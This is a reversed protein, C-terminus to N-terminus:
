RRKIESAIIFRNPNAKYNEVFKIDREWKSRASFYKIDSHTMVCWEIHNSIRAQDLFGLDIIESLIEQRECASLGINEAVSYGYSRLFSEKAMDNWDSYNNSEEYARVFREIGPNGYENIYRRFRAPDMYVERNKTNLTAPCIEYRKTFPSFLMVDVLRESRNKILYQYGGGEKLLISTNVMEFVSLMYYSEPCTRVVKFHNDNWIGCKEKQPEFAAALLERAKESSYHLKVAGNEEGINNKDLVIVYTKISNDAFAVAIVIEASEIENLLKKDKEFQAHMHVNNSQKKRQKLNENMRERKNHQTRNTKLQQKSINTCKTIPVNHIYENKKLITIIANGTKSDIYLKDCTVCYKGPIYTNLTADVHMPANRKELRNNCRPCASMQIYEERIQYEKPFNSIRQFKNKSDSTTKNNM